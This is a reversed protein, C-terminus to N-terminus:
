SKFIPKRQVSHTQSEQKTMLQITLRINSYPTSRLALCANITLLQLVFLFVDLYSFFLM